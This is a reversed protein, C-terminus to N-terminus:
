KWGGTLALAIVAGTLVLLGISILVARDIYTLKM